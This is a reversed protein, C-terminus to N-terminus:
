PYTSHDFDDELDSWRTDQRYDIYGDENADLLSQKLGKTLAAHRKRLEIDKPGLLAKAKGLAMTARPVNSYATARDALLLWLTASKPFRKTLKALLADLKRFDRAQEHYEALWIWNSVDNPKIKVLGEIASRAIKLENFDLAYGVLMERGREKTPNREVFAVLRGLLESLRPKCDPIKLCLEFTMDLIDLDDPSDRHLDEYVALSENYLEPLRKSCSPVKACLEITMDLVDLSDPNADKLEDYVKLAEAYQKKEIFLQAIDELESNIDTDDDEDQALLPSAWGLIALSLLLLTFRQIM